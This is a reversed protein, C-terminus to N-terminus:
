RPVERPRPRPHPCRSPHPLSRCRPESQNGRPGAAAAPSGGPPRHRPRLVTDPVLRDTRVLPLERGRFLRAADVPVGAAALAALTRLRARARRGGPGSGGRPAAPRGAGAAGARHAGGRVPRSSCGPARTTCANSTTPSACRRPSSTSFSTPVDRSTRYPQATTGALVPREPPVLDEEAIADALPRTASAMLPSHFAASVDLRTTDLGGAGAAGGGSRDRRHPRLGRDPPPRQPQGGLRRHARRARCDGGAVPAAVAAMTGHGPPCAEAM